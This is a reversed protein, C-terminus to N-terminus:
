WVEGKGKGKGQGANSEPGAHAYVEVMWEYWVKREDTQRWMHVVIEGDDPM